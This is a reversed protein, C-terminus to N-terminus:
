EAEIELLFEEHPGVVVTEYSYEANDASRSFGLFMTAVLGIGVVLLSCGGIVVKGAKAKAKPGSRTQQEGEGPEKEAEPLDPTRGTSM